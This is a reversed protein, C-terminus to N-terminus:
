ETDGAIVAISNREDQKSREFEAAHEWLRPEFFLLEDMWRPSFPRKVALDHSSEFSSILMSMTVSSPFDIISIM